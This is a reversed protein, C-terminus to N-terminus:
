IQRMVSWFCLTQPSVSNKSGCKSYCLDPIFIDKFMSAWSETEDDDLHIFEIICRIYLIGIMLIVGLGQILIM